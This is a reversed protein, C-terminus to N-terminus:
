AAFVRRKTEVLLTAADGGQKLAALGGAVRISKV